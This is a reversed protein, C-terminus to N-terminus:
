SVRETRAYAIAAPITLEAKTGSDRESWVALAGGVLKAREHMGALGFHGARAGGDLVSPEIGKGDDRVSLRFQRRDYRIDVEIETAHAHRFANRLAEAAIRYVEDGLIPALDRATGEVNVHFGPRHAGGRDGLEDGFANIARGLDSTVATSARLGQVADRGETIARSAREIAGELTARAKDAGPPLLFTVAHFNLLVGQFSQLLTDHLDRAIRTRENVREEFRMNFQRAVQQLRLHYIAALLMLAAAVSSVRLWTMQYYAPAVSFDLFAGAENWVGSNNSASVRFRYSRPSLNNYFAQRRNGADQWESDFGELKYRFRMKEPAVVSLATYDIAVDRILPPLRLQGNVGAPADYTTRDATIREIHVPPPLGNFPLHEPDVVSLGATTAFWLKGDASRAAQPNYTATNATTRVGDSSDFVTAHITRTTARDTDAAAAWADLESRAIRLLGCPTLMWVARGDDETVWHAGDCPLGNKSTLTAVRGHKLRSLGGETAAWLTGERDLHLRNVVGDGLADATTYSERVQDDVFYVVGGERFGVWLGGRARDALVPIGTGHSGLRAWPIQQVEHSPSVRLLGAINNAIWVNGRSDGAIANFNGGPVGDISILRDNEFYGVGRRTSVWIRGRDDQFLAHVGLDPLGPGVIERVGPRTPGSRERYITVQGHNWRNLGARTGIWISGDAAALVSTVSDNSLGQKMSFTAVASDRFRDLGNSTAVWVNRERDEFLAHVVDGSLDDTQTFVDTRGGHLHLLGWGSTGIWLGGDHDRLVNHAQIQQLPPPFPYALETKGTVLRRVGDHTSILLAGGDDEAFGQIGNAEGPFSYFQPPGPKWRWLGTSVGVWLNANADEYLGLVGIGLEGGDGECQAGSKRIACLKGAPARLGGAWISGQRDEVLKGVYMGALEPYQSLTRDKLSALGKLTGIWLTGDRAVLLTAIQTSPLHQDPPPQWAVTKVGDFRLLGFETGLWLYGDPTQAISSIEGKTFGDRIKWATHVYQSVDLSPNLAFARPCWALMSVLLAGRAVSM